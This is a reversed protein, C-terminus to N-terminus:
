ESSSSTAIARLVIAAVDQKITQIDAETEPNLTAALSNVAEEPLKTKLTAVPEPLVNPDFSDLAKLVLDTLDDRKALEEPDLLTLTKLHLSEIWIRESNIAAAQSFCEALLRSHDAHLTEHLACSGTLVVRAALLSEDSAKLASALEKRIAQHIEVEEKMESCDVAISEWRVSDMPCFENGTVDLDDDVTVLYCGKAGPENIHRGQTNGSYVVHPNEHHIQRKHIHGLAWYNYGHAVLQPVTSPAYNGHGTADGLNTHLLGINFHDAAPTPYEEALNETVSPTAFGQGHLAVPLGGHTFSEAKNTGFVHVNKPLVLSKTTKSEADHNGFILYVPITAKELRRMENIFFLGTGYDKWDGDYLDGAILVFDVGRDIALDVLRTLASRTAGRIIDVPADEHQSLGVLPSDLHIDAAHIFTFM